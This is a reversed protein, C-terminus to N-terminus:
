TESARRQRIQIALSALLALVLIAAAIAAGCSLWHLSMSTDLHNSCYLGYSTGDGHSAESVLIQGDPGCVDAQNLTRLFPVFSLLMGGPFAGFVAWGGAIVILPLPSFPKRMVTGTKSVAPLLPKRMSARLLNGALSLAAGVDQRELPAVSLECCGDQVRLWILGLDLMQGLAEPRAWALTDSGPARRFDGGPEHSSMGMFVAYVADFRADGTRLRPANPLMGMISDIDSIKCIVLDPLPVPVAITGVTITGATRQETSPGPLKNVGSNKLVVAAGDLVGWLEFEGLVDGVVTWGTRALEAAARARRAAKDRGDARLVMALGATALVIIAMSMLLVFM